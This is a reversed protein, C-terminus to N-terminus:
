TYLKDVNRDWVQEAESGLSVMGPPLHRIQLFGNGGVLADVLAAEVSRGVSSQWAILEARADAVIDVNPAACPHQECEEILRIIASLQM